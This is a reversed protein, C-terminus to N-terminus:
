LSEGTIPDEALLLSDLDTEHEEFEQHRVPTDGTLYYNHPVNVKHGQEQKLMVRFCEEVLEPHAIKGRSSPDSANEESRLGWVRLSANHNQLETYLKDLVECAMVNGSYMNRLASAAATNDVGINIELNPPYTKLTLRIAFVAAMLEKIFIHTKHLSKSWMHGKELKVQGDDTFLLYGYGEDSSDSCLRVRHAKVHTSTSGHEHQNLTVIDWHTALIAREEESLQVVKDDWSYSEKHRLSAIRRLIRIVPALGCLPRLTIGHRWLIRGIFSCVCRPTQPISWDIKVEMWKAHKKTCQRWLLTGLPLEKERKTSLNFEVGVYEAPTTLDRLKKASYREFFNHTFNFGGSGERRPGFNRRLRQEVKDMMSPNMHFVFINDYFLCIFGGGKINIFTPLQRLDDPVEFLEEEEKETYLIGAWGLSQAIWPSYSHGMVLDVFRYAKFKPKGDENVIVNGHKDVEEIALGFYYSLDDSVPILYFYNTFDSTLMCPSGDPFDQMLRIIKRILEPLFPLNVPPPAYRCSRSLTRGNWVARATNDKKPVAFYYAIHKLRHFPTPLIVGWKELDLIHKTWKKSTIRNTSPDPNEFFDKPLEETILKFAGQTFSWVRRNEITAKKLAAVELSGAGVIVQLELTSADIREPNLDGYHDSYLGLERLLKWSSM